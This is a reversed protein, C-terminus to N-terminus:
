KYDYGEIFNEPVYLTYTVKEKDVGMSSRKLTTVELYIEKDETVIVVKTSTQPITKIGKTTEVKFVSSAVKKGEDWITDQLQNSFEAHTISFKEIQSDTATACGTFCSILAVCMVIISFIKKM